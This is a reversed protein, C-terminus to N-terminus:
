FKPSNDNQLRQDSDKMDSDDEVKVNPCSGSDKIEDSKLMDRESKELDMESEKMDLDETRGGADMRTDNNYIDSEGSVDMESSKLETETSTNARSETDKLSQEAQKDTNDKAKNDVGFKWIGFLGDDKEEGCCLSNDEKVGTASTESESKIVHKEKYDEDAKSVESKSKEKTTTETETKVPARRNQLDREETDVQAFATASFLAAIAFLGLGKM